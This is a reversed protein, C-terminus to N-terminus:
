CKRSCFVVCCPCGGLFSHITLVTAADMNMMTFYIPVRLITVRLSTVDGVERALDQFAKLALEYARKTGHTGRPIFAEPSRKGEPKWVKESDGDGM